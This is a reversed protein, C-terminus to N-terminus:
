RISTRGIISVARIQPKNLPWTPPTGLAAETRTLLDEPNAKDVFKALGFDAMKVEGERNILINAPKIDRHLVGHEHAYQLAGCVVPVIRLAEDPTLQEGAMAQRLNVGDVYEMLLYYHGHSEGFDFVTVINPNNLKALARAERLFREAFHAEQEPPCRLLKLAVLRDLRRQRAKYVIGMGGAGVRELVELAPFAAKVEDLTPDDPLPGDMKVTEIAAESLLCKPCLGQPASEPIPRGCDPCNEPNSATM